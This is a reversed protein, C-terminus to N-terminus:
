TQSVQRRGDECDERVRSESVRGFGRVVRDGLCRSKLPHVDDSFLDDVIIELECEFM